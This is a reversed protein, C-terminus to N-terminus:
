RAENQQLLSSPLRYRILQRGVQILLSDDGKRRIIALRLEEAPFLTDPYLTLSLQGGVQRALTPIEKKKAQLGQVRDQLARSPQQSLIVQQDLHVPAAAAKRTSNVQMESPGPANRAMADRSTAGAAVRPEESVIGETWYGGAMEGSAAPAPPHDEETVASKAEETRALDKKEPTSGKQRLAPASGTASKGEAAPPNARAEPGKDERGAAYPIESPAPGSPPVTGAERQRLWLGIVSVGAIVLITAAVAAIRPWPIEPSRASLLRDSLRGQLQNRAMRRVGAALRLEEELRQRCEECGRFHTDIAARELPQLRGLVYRELVESDRGPHEIEWRDAM